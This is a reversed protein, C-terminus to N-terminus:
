RPDAARSLPFFPVSPNRLDGLEPNSLCDVPSFV